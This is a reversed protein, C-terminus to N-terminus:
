NKNFEIDLKAMSEEVRKVQEALKDDALRLKTTVSDMQVITSDQATESKSSKSTCSATALGLM